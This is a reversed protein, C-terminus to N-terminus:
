ERVVEVSTYRMMDRPQKPIQETSAVAYDCDPATVMLTFAGARHRALTVVLRNEDVTQITPRVLGLEGKLIDVIKEHSEESVELNTAEAM